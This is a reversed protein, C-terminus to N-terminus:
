NCMGCRGEGMHGERRNIDQASFLKGDCFLNGSKEGERGEEKKKGREERGARLARVDSFFTGTEVGEHEFV